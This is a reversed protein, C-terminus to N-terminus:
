TRPYFIGPRAAHQRAWGSVVVALSMLAFMPLAIPNM